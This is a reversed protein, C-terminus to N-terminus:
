GAADVEFVKGLSVPSSVPSRGRWRAQESAADFVALDVTVREPVVIGGAALQPGLNRLIAVFPEDRLTRQMTESVIVHIGTPHRYSTADACVVGRVYQACGLARVLAGVSHVAGPNVDLM